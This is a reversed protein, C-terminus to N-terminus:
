RAPFPPAVATALRQQPLAMVPGQPLRVPFVVHPLSGYFAMHLAAAFPCADGKRDHHTGSHDATEGMADHLASVSASLGPCPMVAMEGGAMPAFMFDPAVAAR